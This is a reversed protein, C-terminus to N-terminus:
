GSSAPDATGTGRVDQLLGWGTRKGLEVDTFISISHTATFAWHPPQRLVQYAVISTENKPDLCWHRIHTVAKSRSFVLTWGHELNLLVHESHPLPCAWTRTLKGLACVDRSQSSCSWQLRRSATCGDSERGQGGKLTGLPAFACSCSCSRACLCLCLCLRENGPLLIKM